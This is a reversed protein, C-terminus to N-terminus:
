LLSIEHHCPWLFLEDAVVINDDDVIINDDAAGVDYNLLYM